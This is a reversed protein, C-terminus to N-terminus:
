RTITSHRVQTRNARSQARTRSRAASPPAVLGGTPKKNNMASAPKTIFGNATLGAIQSALGALGFQVKGSASKVNKELADVWSETAERAKKMAGKETSWENRVQEWREEFTKKFEILMSTMEAKQTKERTQAEEAQQAGHAAQSDQTARVLEELSSVKSELVGIAQQASSYQEQLSRSLELASELQDSLFSLRRTVEKSIGTNASSPAAGGRRDHEFDDDHMGLSSPEPTRLRGLEERRASREEESEEVDNEDEHVTDLEHPVVTCVSRSDDEDEDEDRMHQSM